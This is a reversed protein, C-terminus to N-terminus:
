FCRGGLGSASGCGSAHPGGTREDLVHGDAGFPHVHGTTRTWRRLTAVSVGMYEAAERERVYQRRTTADQSPVPLRSVVAEAVRAALAAEQVAPFAHRGAGFLETIAKGLSERFSNVGNELRLLEGHLQALEKRAREINQFAM